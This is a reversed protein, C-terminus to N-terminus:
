EGDASRSLEEDLMQVLEDRSYTFRQGENYRVLEEIAKKITIEAQDQVPVVMYHAKPASGLLADEVAAAVDDPEPNWDGSEEYNSFVSVMREIDDAYASESWTRGDARMRDLMNRGIASSYNGPEVAVVTVGFRGMEAALSDTYAELAHKSMSYVGFLSGSLIGSISSINIVRGQDDILLRSFAKTVRYPGYVNVDFLFDIDAEEIEILPGVNAVGANNVIGLLHQGSAEVTEVAADIEAQVTVDLRVAIVNELANLADLDVQKRAGAFVTLGKDALRETIRRGIGSSAGTVVVAGASRAANDQAYATGVPGAAAVVLLALATWVARSFTHKMM